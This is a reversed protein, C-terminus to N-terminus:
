GEEKTLSADSLERRQKLLQHALDSISTGDSISFSTNAFQGQLILELDIKQDEAGFRDIGYGLDEVPRDTIYIKDADVGADTAIATTIEDVAHDFELEGTPVRISRRGFRVSRVQHERFICVVYAGLFLLLTGFVFLWYGM